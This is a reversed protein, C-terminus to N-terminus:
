TTPTIPLDKTVGDVTVQLGTSGGTSTIDYQPTGFSAVAGGCPVTGQDTTNVNKPTLTWDTIKGQKNDDPHHHLHDWEQVHGGM